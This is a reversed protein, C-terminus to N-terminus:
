SRSDRHLVKGQLPVSACAQGRPMWCHVPPGSKLASWTAQICSWPVPSRLEDRILRASASLFGRVRCAELCHKFVDELMLSPKPVM